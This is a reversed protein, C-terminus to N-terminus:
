ASRVSAELTGKPLPRKEPLEKGLLKAAERLMQWAKDPNGSAELAESYGMRMMVRNTMGAEIQEKLEEVRKVAPNNVAKDMADAGTRLGPYKDLAKALAPKLPDKADLMSYLQVEQQVKEREGEPVKAFAGIMQMQAAQADQMAKMYKPQLTQGEAAAAKMTADFEQDSLKIAGEFKPGLETMAKRKDPAQEFAQAAAVFQKEAPTKPERGETAQAQLQAAADGQIAKDQQGKKAAVYDLQPAALMSDNLFALRTDANTSQNPSWNESVEFAGKTM